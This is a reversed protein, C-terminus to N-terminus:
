TSTSKSRPAGIQGTNSVHNGGCLETSVGPIHIVRVKEGYKEGFFALAGMERAADMSLDALHQVPHAAFIWQNVLREVEQRETENLARDFSIDFRLRDHDVLSGM